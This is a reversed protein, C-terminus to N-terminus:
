RWGSEEINTVVNPTITIVAGTLNTPKFPIGRREEIVRKLETIASSASHVSADRSVIGDIMVSLPSYEKPPKHYNMGNFIDTVEQLLEWIKSPEMDEPIQEYACNAHQYIDEQGVRYKPDIEGLFRQQRETFEM